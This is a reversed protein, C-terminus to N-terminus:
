YKVMHEPHNKIQGILETAKLEGACIRHVATFLPFKPEMSKAKLMYNVEDATIPGQLKQGNLLEKELEEISKGTKVFAESVKRNRGGYCTTILDAVGCSEFFTGLRAGPYFIDVFKIMEMLGLRIIAAKTNDGLGLGDVFGAACAVVNKLAGCIEVTDTDDVVSVRFYDTQILDRLIPGLEKDKCGITTECFKEEAVEGALNAGMLVTVPIGLHKTIIHSILEIGGGEAKDFGKILSLGVANPKIKGLLSQCLRPIFQHPLVFVLIDAEKATEIPDPVAVVNAPLKHGPLYKVNEHTSNIIETLKKGDVMEEFVYMNVTDEFTDLRATNSGIIKAIASGWNGSGLIAVKKKQSAM